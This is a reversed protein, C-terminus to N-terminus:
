SEVVVQANEDVHGPVLMETKEIGIFGPFFRNRGHAFGGFGARAMRGNECDTDDVFDRGVDHAPAPRCLDTLEDLFQDCRYFRDIGGAKAGEAIVRGGFKEFRLVDIEEAVVNIEVIGFRELIVQSAQLHDGIGLREDEAFETDIAQAFTFLDFAFDKRPLDLKAKATTEGARDHILKDIIPKLFSSGYGVPSEAERSDIAGGFSGEVHYLALEQACRMETQRTIRGDRDDDGAIVPLAGQFETELGELFQVIGLVFHDQDIVTRGIAGLLDASAETIEPVKAVVFVLAKRDCAVGSNCRSPAFDNRKGVRVAARVFVPEVIEHAAQEVAFEGADATVIKQRRFIGPDGSRDHDRRAAGRVHHEGIAYGFVNGAAVHGEIFPCEFLDAPEVRNKPLCAIIDIDAPPELLLAVGEAERRRSKHPMVTAGRHAIVHFLLVAVAFRFGEEHTTVWLVKVPETAALPMTANVRGRADAYRHPRWDDIMPRKGGRKELSEISRWWRQQQEQDVAQLVVDEDAQRQQNQRNNKSRQKGRGDGRDKQRDQNGAGGAALRVDRPVSKTKPGARQDCHKEEQLRENAAPSAILAAQACRGGFEGTAFVEAGSEVFFLGFEGEEFVPVFSVEVAGLEEGEDDLAEVGLAPLIFDVGAPSAVIHLDRATGPALDLKEGGAFDETM